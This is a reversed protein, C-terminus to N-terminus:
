MGGMELDSNLRQGFETENDIFYDEDSSWFHVYMEGDSTEICQQEFGEGLGDSNQGCIWDKFESEEEATLPATLTAKICGYLEGGHAEVDWEVAKLKGVVGNSGYFYEAMNVGDDNYARLKERIEDEYADAFRGDLEDSLSDDLDGYENRELTEIKLPCYYKVVIDNPLHRSLCECFRPLNAVREELTEAECAQRNQMPLDYFRSLVGNLGGVTDRDTLASILMREMETDGTLNVHIQPDSVGVCPIKEAPMEIGISHLKEALERRNAPLGIISSPDGNTVLVNLM